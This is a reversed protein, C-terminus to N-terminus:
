YAQRKREIASGTSVRKGARKPAMTATVTKGVPRGRKRASGPTSAEGLSQRARQAQSMTFYADSRGLFAKVAAGGSEELFAVRIRAIPTYIPPPSPTEARAGPADDRSSSAPFIRAVM